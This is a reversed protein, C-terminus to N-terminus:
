TAGHRARAPAHRRYSKEGTNGVLMFCPVRESGGLQAYPSFTGAGARTSPSGRLTISRRQHELGVTSTARSDPRPRPFLFRRRRFRRRGTFPTPNARTEAFGQHHILDSAVGPGPDGSRDPTRATVAARYAQKADPMTTRKRSPDHADHRTCAPPSDIAAPGRVLDAFVRSRLCQVQGVQKAFIRSIPSKQRNPRKKTVTPCETTVSSPVCPADV